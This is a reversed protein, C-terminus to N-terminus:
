SSTNSNPGVSAFVSSCLKNFSSWWKSPMLIAILLTSWKVWFWSIANTFAWKLLSQSQENSWTNKLFRLPILSNELFSENELQYYLKWLNKFAKLVYNQLSKTEVAIWEPSFIGINFLHHKNRPLQWKSRRSGILNM